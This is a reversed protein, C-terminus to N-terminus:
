TSTLFTTVNAIFEIMSIIKDSVFGNHQLGNETISIYNLVWYTVKTKKIESFLLEHEINSKPCVIRPVQHRASLLM